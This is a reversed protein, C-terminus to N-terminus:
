FKANLDLQFIDVAYPAGDIANASLWRASAWVNKALAVNSGVFYGKLNTGGLGFDSDAFADMVADSELYKYGVHVNWDGFQNLKTHGVTVRTLWGLNGGSFPGPLQGPILDPALNNVAVAAVAARDFASNWVFEGDAVIHIPDFHAFDFRASAVVPRFESALGFYQPMPYLFDGPPPIIDRLAMYTNGKQAFSPRLHDTDCAPAVSVDCPSSLQGRVNSYDFYSVAFTVDVLPAARWQFGLQAGFLYKDESKFKVLDRSSFDLSTNFIPFAGAVLFPAFGSWVEHQAQVAVGDFGLDTDWVLETPSWFPNDFRGINFTLSSPGFGNYAAFDTFYPYKFPEFKVYARDLWLAYKSFNGGSGGLTQNTSVPSSDSGTGIRLGATFGEYLDADLGLRARLRTRNRDKTTNYLPPDGQELDSVDYPSGTNITNFDVIQGTSNFGGKPYWIGEWRARVDGSFRIRSAWEPYTGPSAWGEAKAQSMVEKRLDERLQRKVVEPVYTVRKSGPPSAAAAAATAAKAADDAKVTADRAAERAVYAEDEAQKILAGAQEENLVGQQVLLNVLNVTANSSAPKKRSVTPRDDQAFASGVLVSPM